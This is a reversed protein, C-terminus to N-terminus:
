QKQRVCCQCDQHNTTGGELVPRSRIRVAAEVALVCLEVYRPSSRAAEPQLLAWVDAASAGRGIAPLVRAALDTPDAARRVLPQADFLGPGSAPHALLADELASVEARRVGSQADAPHRVQPKAPIFHTLIKFTKSAQM